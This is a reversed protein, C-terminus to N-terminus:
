LCHFFFTNEKVCSFLIAYCKRKKLFIFIFCNCYCDEVKYLHIVDLTFIGVVANELSSTDVLKIFEKM